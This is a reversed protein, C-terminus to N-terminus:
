PEATLQQPSPDIPPPATPDIKMDLFESFTKPGEEFTLCCKGIATNEDSTLVASSENAEYILSEGAKVGLAQVSPPANAPRSVRVIGAVSCVLRTNQLEWTGRKYIMGRSGSMLTSYCHEFVNGEEWLKLMWGVERFETEGMQCFVWSPDPQPCEDNDDSM